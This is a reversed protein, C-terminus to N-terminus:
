NFNEHLKHEIAHCHRCLEILNNMDVNKRDGDKHHIVLFKTSGCKECYRQPKHKHYIQKYVSYGGKFYPNKPGSQNGGSGVGIKINPNKKKRSKM